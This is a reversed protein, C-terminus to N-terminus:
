VAIALKPTQCRTTFIKASGAGADPNGYRSDQDYYTERLLQTIEARSVVAKHGGGDKKIDNIIAFM